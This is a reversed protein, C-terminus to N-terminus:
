KVGPLSKQKFTAVFPMSPVGTAHWEVLTGGPGGKAARYSPGQPTLKCESTRLAVVFKLSATAPDFEGAEYDPFVAVCSTGHVHVAGVIDSTIANKHASPAPAPAPASVEQKAM